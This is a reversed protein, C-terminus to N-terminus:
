ASAKYYKHFFPIYEDTRGGKYKNYGLRALFVISQLSVKRIFTLRCSVFVGTLSFSNQRKQPPFSHYSLLFRIM